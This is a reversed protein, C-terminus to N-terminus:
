QAPAPEAPAADTPAQAPEAPAPSTEAPATANPAPAAQDAPAAPAMADPAPAPAPAAPETTAPAPETTAPQTVPGATDNSSPAFVYFAVVALVVIVAAILLGNVGTGTVPGRNDVITEGRRTETVVPDPGLGPIPAPAPNFPDQGVAPDPDYKRAPDAMDNEMAPLSKSQLSPQVRSRGIPKM